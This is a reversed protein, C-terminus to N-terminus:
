HIHYDALHHQLYKGSICLLKIAKACVSYLLMKFWGGAIFTVSLGSTDDTVSVLYQLDTSQVCPLLHAQSPAAVSVRVTFCASSAPTVYQGPTLRKEGLPGLTTDDIGAPVKLGSFTILTSITCSPLIFTYIYFLFAKLDTALKRAKGEHYSHLSSM